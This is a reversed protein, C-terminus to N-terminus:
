LFPPFPIGTVMSIGWSVLVRLALGLVRTVIEDGYQDWWESM